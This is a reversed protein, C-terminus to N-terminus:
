CFPQSGSRDQRDLEGIPLASRAPALKERPELLAAEGTDLEDDAVIAGAELL